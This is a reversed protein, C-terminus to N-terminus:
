ARNAFGFKISPPAREAKEPYEVGIAEHHKRLSRSIDPPQHGNIPRGAVVCCLESVRQSIRGAASTCGRPDSLRIEVSPGIAERLAAEDAAVDFDLHCIVPLTLCQEAM